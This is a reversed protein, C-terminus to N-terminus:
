LACLVYCQGAYVSVEGEEKLAAGVDENLVKSEAVLATLAAVNQPSVVVDLQASKGPNLVHAALSEIQAKVDDTSTVRLVKFGSYDVKKGARPVATGFAASLLLASTILTSKMMFLPHLWWTTHKFIYVVVGRTGKAKHIAAIASHLSGGAWLTTRGVSALRRKSCIHFLCTDVRSGSLAEALM